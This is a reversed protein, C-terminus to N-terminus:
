AIIPGLKSRDPNEGITTIWLYITHIERQRTTLAADKFIQDCVTTAAEVLRLNETRNVANEVTFDFFIDDFAM